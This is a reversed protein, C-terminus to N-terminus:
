EVMIEWLYQRKISAEGDYTNLPITCESVTIKQIPDERHKRNYLHAVAALTAEHQSILTARQASDEEVRISEVQTELKRLIGHKYLTLPVRPPVLRVTKGNRSKGLYAYHTPYEEVVQSYMRWPVFPFTRRDRGALHGALLLGLLALFVLKYFRGLASFMEAFLRHSALPHFVALILLAELMKVVTRGLGRQLGIGALMIALMIAVGFIVLKKQM